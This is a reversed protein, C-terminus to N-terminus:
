GFHTPQVPCRGLSKGLGFHNDVSAYIDTGFFAIDQPTGEHVARAAEWTKSLGMDIAYLTNGQRGTGLLLNDPKIDRHLWGANHITQIRAIAQDAILLVTKESFSYGCYELLDVLSPGLMDTAMCYYDGEQGHWYARPVGRKGGRTTGAVGRHAVAELNLAGPRAPDHKDMDMM